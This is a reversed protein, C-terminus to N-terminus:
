EIVEGRLLFKAFAATSAFSLLAIILGAEVYLISGTRLGITLLLLMGDIYLADLAVVRDQARPGRVMRIIAMAMGLLLLFQSALIATTAFSSIM